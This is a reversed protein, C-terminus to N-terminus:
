DKMYVWRGHTDAWRGKAPEYVWGAKTLEERRATTYRGNSWTCGSGEGITYGLGREKFLTPTPKDGEALIGRILTRFRWVNEHPVVECEYSALSLTEGEFLEVIVYWEGTKGTETNHDMQSWAHEGFPDWSEDLSNFVSVVRYTDWYSGTSGYPDALRVLNGVKPKNM